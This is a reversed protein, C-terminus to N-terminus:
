RRAARSRWGGLRLEGFGLGLEGGEDVGGGLVGVGEVGLGWGAGDAVAEGGLAALMVWLNPM